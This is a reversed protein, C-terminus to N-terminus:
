RQPVACCNSRYCVPDDQVADTAVPLLSDVPVHQLCTVADQHHCDGEQEKRQHPQGEKEAGIYLARIQETKRKPSEEQHNRSAWSAKISARAM